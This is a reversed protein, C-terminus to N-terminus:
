CCKEFSFHCPKNLGKEGNKECESIFRTLMKDMKKLAKIKDSIEVKKSKAMDRSSRCPGSHQQLDVLNKIESLTFGAKKATTIFQIRVVTEASFIRYGSETRKGEPLLGKSEYFRLTEKDIGTREVIDKTRM